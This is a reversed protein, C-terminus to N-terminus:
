FDPSGDGNCDLAVVQATSNRIALENNVASHLNKRDELTMLMCRYEVVEALAPAARQEGQAQLDKFKQLYSSGACASLLLGLMAIALFRM